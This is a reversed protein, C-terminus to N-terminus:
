VSRQAVIQWVGFKVHLLLIRLHLSPKQCLTACRDANYVTSDSDALHIKKLVPHHLCKDLTGCGPVDCDVVTNWLTTDQAWEEAEDVSM